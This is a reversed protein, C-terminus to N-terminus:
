CNLEVCVDDADGDDEMSSERNAKMAATIATNLRKSSDIDYLM